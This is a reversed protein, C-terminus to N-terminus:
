FISIDQQTIEEFAMAHQLSGNNHSGVSIMNGKKRRWLAVSKISILAWVFALSFYDYISHFIYIIHLNILLPFYVISLLFFLSIEIKWQRQSARAKSNSRPKQDYKLWPICSILPKEIKMLVKLSLLLKNTFEWENM